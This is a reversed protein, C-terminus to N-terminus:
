GRIFLLVIFIKFFLFMAYLTKGQNRQAKKLYFYLFHIKKPINLIFISKTYSQHEPIVTKLIFDSKMEENISLKVTIILFCMVSPFKVIRKM